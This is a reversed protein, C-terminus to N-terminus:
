RIVNTTVNAPVGTLADALDSASITGMEGAGTDSYIFTSGDSTVSLLTIAHGGSQGNRWLREADVHLIVGHGSAVAYALRRVTFDKDTSIPLNTIPIGQSELLEKRSNPTTGGRSDMDDHFLDMMTLVHNSSHLAASIIEDETTPVGAMTLINASQCLGCTGRMPYQSRGQQQILRSNTGVPDNYVNMQIGNLVVSQFGYRTHNLDRPAAPASTDYALGSNRMNAAISAFDPVARPQPNGDNIRRLLDAQYQQRYHGLVASLAAGSVVGRKVLEDEYGRITSEINALGRKLATFKQLKIDADDMNDESSSIAANCSVEQSQFNFNEYEDVIRSISELYQDANSVATYIRKLAEVCEVIIVEFMEYNKDTWTNRAGQLKMTMKRVLITISQLSDSMLNRYHMIDNSSVRIGAM